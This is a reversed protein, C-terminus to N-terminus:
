LSAGGRLPDHDSCRPTRQCGTGAITANGWPNDFGPTIFLYDIKRSGLTSENYSSSPSEYRGGCWSRTDVEHMIGASNGGYCSHYLSNIQYDGPDVNFDGGIVVHNGDARHRHVVDRVKRIQDRQNLRQQSNDDRHNIHTVCAVVSRSDYRVCLVNRREHGSLKPLYTKGAGSINARVFIANGYSKGDCNGVNTLNYGYRGEYGYTDMRDRIYDFQQWCVENLTVVDPWTEKMSDIVKQSVRTDGYNGGSAGAMNFQLFEYSTAAEASRTNVAADALVLGTTLLIATLVVSLRRGIVTENVKM